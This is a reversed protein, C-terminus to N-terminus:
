VIACSLGSASSAAHRRTWMQPQLASALHSTSATASRSIASPLSAGSCHYPLAFGVVPLPKARLPAVSLLLHIGFVVM